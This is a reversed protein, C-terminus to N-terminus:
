AASRAEIDKLVALRRTGKTEPGGVPSQSTARGAAEPRRSRSPRHRKRTSATLERLAAQEYSVPLSLEAATIRARRGDLTSGSRVVSVQQLPGEDCVALRDVDAISEFPNAPV